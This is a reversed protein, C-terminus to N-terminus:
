KDGPSCRGHEATCPPDCRGHEANCDDEARIRLLEVAPAPAPAITPAPPPLPTAPAEPPTWEGSGDGQDITLGQGTQELPAVPLVVPVATPAPAVTPLPTPPLTPVAARTPAVIPRERVIPRPAPQVFALAIVGAVALVGVVGALIPMVNQQPAAPPADEGAENRQRELRAAAVIKSAGHRPAYETAFDPPPSEYDDLNM